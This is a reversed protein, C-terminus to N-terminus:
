EAKTWNGDADRELVLRWGDDYSRFYIERCEKDPRLVFVDEAGWSSNLGGFASYFELEMRGEDESVNKMDRVYGMSSGVGIQITVVDSFETVSYDWLFVDARRTLGTTVMYFVVLAVLVCLPISIWKILKKADM